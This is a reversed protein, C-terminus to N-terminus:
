VTVSTAVVVWQFLRYTKELWEVEREFRFTVTAVPRNRPYMFDNSPNTGNWLVAVPIRKYRHAMMLLANNAERVNDGRVMFFICHVPELLQTCREWDTAGGYERLVLTYNEFDYVTEYFGNTPIKTTDPGMHFLDLFHTKGSNTLGIVMINITKSKALGM